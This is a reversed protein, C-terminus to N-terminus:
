NKRFMLFVIRSFLKIVFRNKMPADFANALAAGTALQWINTDLKSVENYCQKNKVSTLHRKSKLHDTFRETSHDALNGSKDIFARSRSHDQNQNLGWIKLTKLKCLGLLLRLSTLFVMKRFLRLCTLFVIKQFSELIKTMMWWFRKM